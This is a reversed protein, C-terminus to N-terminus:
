RLIGSWSFYRGPCETRDDVLTSHKAVRDTDVDYQQQLYAILRHCAEIQKPSPTTDNLNGVLCIGIGHQNYEPHEPHNCHAGHKQKTWRDGIEIEGDGSETGNGIVFHYGCEDWGRVERHYRDISNVSGIDAASHHLVIYQWPRATTSPSLLRFPHDTFRSVARAMRWPEASNSHRASRGGSFLFSTGSKDVRDTFSKTNSASANGTVLTDDQAQIRPSVM